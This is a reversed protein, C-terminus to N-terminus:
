RRWFQLGKLVAAITEPFSHYKVVTKTVVQGNPDRQVIETREAIGGTAALYMGYMCVVALVIPAIPAVKRTEAQEFLERIREAQAPDSWAWSLAALAINTQALEDDKLKQIAADVAQTNGGEDEVIQQWMEGALPGILAPLLM